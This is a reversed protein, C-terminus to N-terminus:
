GSHSTQENQKDWELQAYIRADQSSYGEKLCDLWVRLFFASYTAFPRRTRNEFIMNTRDLYELKTEPRIKKTNERL